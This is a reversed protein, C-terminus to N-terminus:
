KKGPPAFLESLRQAGDQDTVALVEDELEM